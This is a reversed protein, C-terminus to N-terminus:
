SQHVWQCRHRRPRVECRQSTSSSGRSEPSAGPCASQRSTARSPTSRRCCRWNFAIATWPSAASASSTLCRGRMCEDLPSEWALDFTGKIGVAEIQTGNPVSVACFPVDDLPKVQCHEKAVTLTIQSGAAPPITLQLHRQNLQRRIPVVLPITVIHLGKGRLYITHAKQRNACRGGFEGPGSHKPASSGAGEQLGIPVGVTVDPRDVQIEYRVDLKAWDGEETGKISSRASATTLIPEVPM